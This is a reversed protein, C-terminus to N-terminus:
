KVAKKEPEVAVTGAAYEADSVKRVVGLSELGQKVKDKGNVVVPKDKLDEPRAVGFEGATYGYGYPTGAKLFLVKVM